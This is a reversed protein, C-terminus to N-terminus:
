RQNISDLISPLNVRITIKNIQNNSKNKILISGSIEKLIILHILIAISARKIILSKKIKRNSSHVKQVKGEQRILMQITFIRGIVM